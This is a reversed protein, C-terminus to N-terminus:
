EHAKAMNWVALGLAAIAAKFAEADDRAMECERIAAQFRRNVDSVVEPPNGEGGWIMITSYADHHVFDGFEIPRWGVSLFEEIRSGPVYSLWQTTM